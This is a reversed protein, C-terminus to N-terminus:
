WRPGVVGALVAGARLVEALEAVALVVVEVVVLRDGGRGVM